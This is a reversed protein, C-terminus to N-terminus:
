GEWYHPSVWGLIISGLEIHLYEDLHPAVWELPPALWMSISSRVETWRYESWYPSITVEIFRWYFTNIRAVPTVHDLRAMLDEASDIPVSRRCQSAYPPHQSYVSPNLPYVSPNLPYISPNLPMCLTQYCVFLTSYLPISSCVSPKLPM